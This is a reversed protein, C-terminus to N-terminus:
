PATPLSATRAEKKGLLGMKQMELCLEAHRKNSEAAGFKMVKLAQEAFAKAKDCEGMEKYAISANNLAFAYGVSQPSQEIYQRYYEAVENWRPRTLHSTADALYFAFNADHVFPTPRAVAQERAQRLLEIGQEIRSDQQTWEGHKVVLRGKMAQYRISQPELALAREMEQLARNFNGYFGAYTATMFHHFAKDQFREALQDVHNFAPAIAALASVRESLKMNMLPGLRLYVLQWNAEVNDPQEELVAALYREPASTDGVYGSKILQDIAQALLANVDEGARGMGPMALVILIMFVRWMM